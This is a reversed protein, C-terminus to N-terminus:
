KGDHTSFAQLATPVVRDRGEATASPTLDALAGERAWDLIDFGLMQLATPPDGATVRARVATMAADGGSTWGHLM